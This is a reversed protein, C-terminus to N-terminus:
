TGCGAPEPITVELRRFCGAEDFVTLTREGPALGHTTHTGAAAGAGTPGDQDWRYNFPANTGSIGFTASGDTCTCCSPARVAIEELQIVDPIQVSVTETKPPSDDDTVTFLHTGPPLGEITCEGGVVHIQGHPSQTDCTYPPRGGSIRLRATARVGGLRGCGYELEGTGEASLPEPEVDCCRFRVRYDQCNVKRPQDDNLCIGGVEPLCTYDNGTMRWDVGGLTQCEIDIPEDCIQGPNARKLDALGEFDGDGSPNDRDFWGTWLTASPRTVCEAGPLDRFLSEERAFYGGGKDGDPLGPTECDVGTVCSKRERDYTGDPCECCTTCSLPRSAAPQFGRGDLAAYATVEGDFDKGVRDCLWADNGFRDQDARALDACARQCKAEKLSRFWCREWAPLDQRPYTILADPISPDGSRDPDIAVQCACQCSAAAPVSSLATLLLGALVWPLSHCLLSTRSKTQLKM